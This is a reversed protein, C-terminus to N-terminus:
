RQTPAMTPAVQPVVIVQPPTGPQARDQKDGLWSLGGIIAAIIALAIGLGTLTYVVLDTRSPLASLRGIVIDLKDDIRGLRSDAVKAWEELRTVREDMGGSTGGGDRSRLAEAAADKYQRAEELMSRLENFKTEISM